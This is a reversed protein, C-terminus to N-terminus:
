FVTPLTITEREDELLVLVAVVRVPSRNPLKFGVSLEKGPLLVVEDTAWVINGDLVRGDNLQALVHDSPVTRRIPKDIADKFDM